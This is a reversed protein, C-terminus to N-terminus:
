LGGTNRPPPLNEKKDNITEEEDAEEPMTFFADRLSPEKKENWDFLPLNLKKGWNEHLKGIYFVLQPGEDEETPMSYDFQKGKDKHKQKGTLLFLDVLFDNGNKIEKFVHADSDILYVERTESVAINFTHDENTIIFVSNTPAENKFYNFFQNRYDHIKKARENKDLAMDLKLQFEKETEIKEQNVKNNNLMEKHLNQINKESLGQLKFVEEKTLRENLPITENKKELYSFFLCRPKHTDGEILIKAAELSCAVCLGRDSGTPRIKLLIEKLSPM